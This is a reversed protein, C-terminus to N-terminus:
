RYGREETQSKFGTRRLTSLTTTIKGQKDEIPLYLTYETPLLYSSLSETRDITLIFTLKDNNDYGEVRLLALSQTDIWVIIRGYPLEEVFKARGEAVLVSDYNEIRGLYVFGFNFREAVYRMFEWPFDMLGNIEIGGQQLENYQKSIKLGEVPSEIFISDNRVAIYKEYPVLYNIEFSDPGCFSFNGLLELSLNEFEIRRKIRGEVCGLGSYQEASKSIIESVSINGATSEFILLLIAM